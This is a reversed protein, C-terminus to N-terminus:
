DADTLAAERRDFGNRVVRKHVRLTKFSTVSGDVDQYDNSNFFLQKTVLYCRVDLTRETGAFIGLSVSRCLLKCKTKM